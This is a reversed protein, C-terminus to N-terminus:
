SFTYWLFTIYGVRSIQAKREEFGVVALLVREKGIWELIPLFFFKQKSYYNYNENTAQMKVRKFLFKKQNAKQNQVFLIV